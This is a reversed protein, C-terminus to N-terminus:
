IRYVIVHSTNSDDYGVEDEDSYHYVIVHSTNSYSERDQTAITARSLCYCSIYKFLQRYQQKVCDKMSLCYCSIYKFLWEEIYSVSCMAIFLLMLHIQINKETKPCRKETHIFLLMLHIQIHSEAHHLLLGCSLCYCSIYKFTSIICLGSKLRRSLCYCSIYKFINVALKEVSSTLIFLLMLHIQIGSLKM